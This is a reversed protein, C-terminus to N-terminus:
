KSSPKQKRTKRNQKEREKEAKKTQKEREKEAKKTQKEREKETKEREKEARLAEKETVKRMKEEEKATETEIIAPLRDELEAHIRKSYDEILRRIYEEQIEEDELEGSRRLQKKLQREAREIEKQASRREKLTKRFTKLFSRIQNRKTKQVSAKEVQIDKIDSALTKKSSMRLIRLNRMEEVLIQDVVSIELSNLNGSKRLEKIQKIKKRYKEINTKTAEELDLIRQDLVHLHDTYQMIAPHRELADKIPKNSSSTKGCTRINAYLSRKFEAYEQPHAELRSSIKKLADIKFLTRNKLQERIGNINERIDAVHEKADKVMDRVHKRVIKICTNKVKGEYENCKTQLRRFRNPDLDGVEESVRNAQERIQRKLSLINSNLYERVYKKDFRNIWDYNNLLPAKIYSIVPQAFQRADKERNLYSVQGAIEDLYKHRGAESFAGSEDLYTEAFTPFDEPFQEAIPRCLNLLKIMEMPDKVVPTASMLLLRVSDKGSVEYSNMLAKHFATMDPRELRSLDDAGYLKHVEDIILLTKRLPDEVGNIKVLTQYIKNQKSVLNSFQKYSMPRIRWSKSLLRLRKNQEVPYKAIEESRLHERISENCVQDFMNKWIDNKLTTRTVWLITYGEREFSSSATAIATCTKGTGVSNWLLMGKLPNEPTFYHSIFKQTPTYEIVQPAAGGRIAVEGCLNEMKVADWSYESFNRRIHERMEELGMKGSPNLLGISPLPHYVIRRPVGMEPLPHYVPNRRSPHGGEIRLMEGIMDEISTSPSETNKVAFNHINLNLEYDVSGYITTEELDAAFQFLRLDLNLSKLYLDHLSNAGIFTPHLNELIETDYITVYLPWGKQPHFTLGKQGCTRTGRGIIQKQDALSFPPEFIHIYKIDFLDIGEKFGSDMLIFRTYKGHINAEFPSDADPRENFNQLIQKKMNVSIPKDYVGTSSLLYFNSYPTAQLSQKSRLELKGYKASESSEILEANYALNMGKAILASAVMKVGYGSKLDSFIFHKFLKGHLQLDKADLEEIRQLLAVLKPSYDVMDKLVEVPDFDLTDFKYKNHMKAWNSKKRVCLPDYSLVPEHKVLNELDTLPQAHIYQRFDPNPEEEEEDDEEEEEDEYEVFDMDEDNEDFDDERNM